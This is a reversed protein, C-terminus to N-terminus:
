GAGQGVEGLVRKLTNVMAPVEAPTLGGHSKLYDAVWRGSARGTLQGGQLMLSKRAFAAATGHCGSCHEKFLPASSAQATLMAMVPAVLEDALYHNGLFVALGSGHSRGLLRGDQVRLTSRVFAASEGHCDKCRGDWYAHLDPPSPPAAAALPAVALLAVALLWAAVIWGHM